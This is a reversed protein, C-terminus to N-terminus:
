KFSYYVDNSSEEGNNSTKQHQNCPKEKNRKWSIALVQKLFSISQHLLTQSSGLNIAVNYRKIYYSPVVSTEGGQGLKHTLVQKM